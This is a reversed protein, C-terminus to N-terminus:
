KLGCNRYAKGTFLQTLCISAAVTMDPHTGLCGECWPFSPPFVAPHLCCVLSGVVLNKGLFTMWLHYQWSFQVASHVRVEETTVLLKSFGTLLHPPQLGHAMGLSQSTETALLWSVHLSPKLPNRGWSVRSHLARVAKCDPLLTLCVPTMLLCGATLLCHSHTLCQALLIRTCWSMQVGCFGCTIHWRRSRGHLRLTGYSYQKCM